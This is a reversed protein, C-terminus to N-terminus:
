RASKGAIDILTQVAREASRGDNLYTGYARLFEENIPESLTWDDEGLVREIDKFFQEKTESFVVRKKILEVAHPDFRFFTRDTYLIIKKNTTLAQVLITSPHDIILLDADYLFKRFPVDRVIKVNPLPNQRFWDDIPNKVPEKPHLKAIFQIEPFHGFIKIIEQELRWYWIDPCVHYSHHRLDGMLSSSVYIVKRSKRTQNPPYNSPIDDKAQAISDLAASGVAIPKARHKDPSRHASPVPKALFKVIDEGYCFYYDGCSLEMHEFIPAEAYGCLGGHQHIVSPIGLHRAVECAVPELLSLVVGRELKELMHRTFRAWNLSRPLFHFFFYHLRPYVIPYCDLGSINFYPALQRQCEESDWMKTLKQKLMQRERAPAKPAGLRNTLMIVPGINETQWKEIVYDVDHGPETVVLAPQGTKFQLQGKDFDSHSVGPRERTLWTLANAIRWGGPLRHLLWSARQRHSTLSQWDVMAASMQTLKVQYHEAVIPLVSRFASSSSFGLGDRREISVDKFSVIENPKINEIAAKLAFTRNLIADFLIKWSHFSQHASCYKVEPVDSLYTQLIRDLTDCFDGVVKYNEIGLAILEAEDYFDEIQRYTLGACEGAYDAEPSLAVWTNEPNGASFRRLLKKLQAATEFLLLRKM